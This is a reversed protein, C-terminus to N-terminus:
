SAALGLATNEKERNQPQQRGLTNTNCDISKSQSAHELRPASLCAECKVQAQGKKEAHARGKRYTMIHEGKETHAKSLVVARRAAPSDVDFSERSGERQIRFRDKGGSKMSFVIM